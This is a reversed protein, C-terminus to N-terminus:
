AKLAEALRRALDGLVTQGRKIVGSFHVFGHIVGPERHLEIDVGERSLRSAFAEGEDRLVDFEATLVYTKPLGSLSGSKLPSALPHGRDQSGMYCDWFYAMESASLGNDTAFERYSDSSCSGDMVPYVLQQYRIQPGSDDRAKLCVAAALNGGASDGMVALRSTDLNLANGKEAIFCTADYCDDFGAPFPDEPALRYEVLAIAVGSEKALYRCLTDHTQINGLVWGGGHFLVAVPVLEDGSDNRYLRFGVGSATQHDSVHSIEVRPLFISDLGNFLTRAEAPPMEEIKPGEASNLVALFQAVQPDYTM